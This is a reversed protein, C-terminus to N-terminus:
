PEISLRPAGDLKFVNVASILDGAQEKLNVAVAVMEEAMASNQQTVTEMSSVSQGVQSVGHAQEASATSITGVIDTVSVISNVVEQMTNGATDALATGENVREVSAEILTKIEKAAEASRGALTRVENAVVAFGRGQEGARAAEVAANLALINTQFAIGDIVGIIDAIKQGSAHIEKMTEVVKSVERGGRSAVDSAQQALRNASAASDANQHVMANLQMISASTKQLENAQLSVRNGLEQNDMAIQNASQVMVQASDKVQAIAQGVARQLTQVGGMLSCSAAMTTGSLDLQGVRTLRETLDDLGAGLTAHMRRRLHWIVGMLVVVSGTLIVSIWQVHSRTTASSSAHSRENQQRMADGFDQIDKALALGYPRAKEQFVKGMTDFDRAKALALSENFAQYYLKRNQAFRQGIERVGPPLHKAEYTQATANIATQLQEMLAIRENRGEDNMGPMSLELMQIAQILQLRYIDSALSAPVTEQEFVRTQQQNAEFLAFM